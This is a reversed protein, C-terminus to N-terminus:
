AAGVDRCARVKCGNLTYFQGSVDKEAFTATATADSGAPAQAAAFGCLGVCVSLHPSAAARGKRELVLTCAARAPCTRRQAATCSPLHAAPCTRRQAAHM